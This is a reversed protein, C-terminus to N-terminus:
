TASGATTRTDAINFLDKWAVPIGDLASLPVGQQWRRASAASEKRAREPTLTIFIGSSKEAAALCADTFDLPSLQGKAFLATISCADLLGQEFQQRIMNANM